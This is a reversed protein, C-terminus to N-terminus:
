FARLLTRTTTFGDGTLRIFYVGSPLDAGDVEIRQLLDAELTGEFLMDILRGQVDYLGVSVTQTQNVGFRLAAQTIFPNPYAQEFVYRGPIEVTAEVAHTYAFTGDFDVQKLRFAHRGPLVDGVTFSYARRDLTTGHGAVYGIQAFDGAETAQEIEFGANDTESITEWTLLITQEDVTAEFAGLEIPLTGPPTCTPSPGLVQGSDFGSGAKTNWTLFGSAYNGDITFYYMASQGALIEEDWKVGLTTNTQPDPGVSCDGGNETMNGSDGTATHWTGCEVVQWGCGSVTAVNVTTHSVNPSTGSEVCYYWTSHGANEFDMVMGSYEVWDNGIVVPSNTCIAQANLNPAAMSLAALLVAACATRKTIVYM